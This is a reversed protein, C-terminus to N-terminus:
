RRSNDSLPFQIKRGRKLGIIARSQLASIHPLTNVPGPDASEAIAITDGGTHPMTGETLGM